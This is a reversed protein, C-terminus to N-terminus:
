EPVSQRLEELATKADNVSKLYDIWGHKIKSYFREKESRNMASPAPHTKNINKVKERYQKLTM